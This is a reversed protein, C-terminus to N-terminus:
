EGWVCEDWLGEDWLGVLRAQRMTVVQNYGGDGLTHKIGRYRWYGSAGTNDPDSFEVLDGPQRRPDGFMELRDVVVVPRTLEGILAAALRQADYRRQVQDLPFTLGREGRIAINADDRLQVNADSVRIAHGYVGLYAFDLDSDHALYADAGTNNTLRLTFQGADWATIEAGVQASTLVSGTGDPLTNATYYSWGPPSTDAGSLQGSTLATLTGAFLRTAPDMAIEYEIVGPPSYITTRIDVVLTSARDTRTENFQIRLSNRIKSPDSYVKPTKTHRGVSLSETVTQPEDKAWYSMPLYLVRDNEDVRLAAFEAQALRGVLEWAELPQPEALIELDIVSPYVFAERLWWDGVVGLSSLNDSNNSPLAQAGTTFQFDAIPLVSAISVFTSEPATSVVTPLGATSLGVSSFLTESGDLYLGVLNGSASWFAGVHHWLGDSPLADETRTITTSGDFVRIFPMRLHNIGCTVYTNNVNILEIGALFPATEGIGFFLDGSGGPSGNVSTPDARVWFEVRGSSGAQSWWDDGPGFSEDDYFILGEVGRKADADCQGFTGAVFPGDVVQPVYRSTFDSDGAKKEMGFAIGTRNSDLPNTNPIFPNGSGYFPLWLRCGDFTPPSPYVGAEHLAWAVAWSANFGYFEPGQLYSRERVPPQVIKGLRLRNRSMANLEAARDNVPTSTMQGYFIRVPEPGESTIAIADVSVPSVDRPYGYLPSNSQLESFYWSAPREVGDVMAGGSLPVRAEATGLGSVFTVQDPLGDDLFHEVTIPRGANGSLNDVTDRTFLAATGDDRFTAPSDFGDLEWDAMVQPRDWTVLAGSMADAFNDSADQM